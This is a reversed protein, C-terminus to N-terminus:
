DVAGAKMAAERFEPYARATLFIIQIKRKESVLHRQLDLGSMGSMQVDLILCKAAKSRPAILFEEASSFSEALFGNAKLLNVTANRFAQDDDVVSIWQNSEDQM